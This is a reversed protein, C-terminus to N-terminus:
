LKCREKLETLFDEASGWYIEIQMAPAGFYKELYKRVRALDAGMGEEPDLQVAVNKYFGRLKSGQLSQLLHMLIRFQWSGMRFGLFMLGSDTLKERIVSPQPRSQQRTVGILYQFYDDETLVMSAKKSFHGFLPVVLPSRKSARMPTEDDDDSMLHEETWLPIHQSPFKGEAALAESLLNDHGTSLFLPCNLKALIEHPLLGGGEKRARSIESFLGLLKEHPREENGEFWPRMSPHHLLLAESLFRVYDNIAYSKGQTTSVYQAVEHLDFGPSSRLPFNTKEAWGRALDGPSGLYSDLLGPGLIPVLSGEELQDILGDWIEFDDAKAFRHEYWVRGTILRTYLVPAWFDSSERVAFRGESMAQDVQGSKLLEAFFVPTFASVTKQMVNGQMAVVAPIGAEALRPGLAGLVGKDNSQLQGGTGASQCSALVMLRPLKLLRAFGNVLDSGATVKSTGDGAALWLRPEEEILAGHCVLYFVDYDDRLNELILDLTVPQGEGLETVNLGVLSERVRQLEGKVDIEPLEQGGPKWKALDSPSAVAVLARLDRKARLQVPRMDFSGLFRSFLVREDMLLSRGSVPDRLTEWRLSHLPLSWRDISLRLRLPRGSAEVVARVKGLYAQVDGNGLLAKGLLEGYAKPQSELELLAKFDFRVAELEARLEAEQSPDRFRLAMSYSAAECRSLGIELEPYSM